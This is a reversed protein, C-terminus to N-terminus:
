KKRSRLAAFLGILLAAAGGIVYWVAKDTPQGSFLNSLDATISSSEKYGWVLLGAGIIILLVGVGRSM